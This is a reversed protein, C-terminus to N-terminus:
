HPWTKLGQLTQMVDFDADRHLLSHGHMICYSALLVDIPSAITYGRERLARYHEAAMLANDLGGINVVRTRLLMEQADRQAKPSNFGRLVEFVVLDAVGLEDDASALLADLHEAQASKTGRFYDIWVSSDILIM